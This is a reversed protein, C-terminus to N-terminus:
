SRCTAPRLVALVGGPRARYNAHTEAPVGAAADLHRVIVDSSTVM